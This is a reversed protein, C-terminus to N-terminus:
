QPVYVKLNDFYIRAVEGQKRAAELVITGTPFSSDRVRALRRDNAYVEIQDGRCIVKLHNTAAGQNIYSSETWDKVSSWAGDLQKYIVYSAGAGSGGSSILFDYSNEKDQQRFGIGYWTDDPGSGFTADVEIAFDHLPGIKPNTRVVVNYGVQSVVLLYEGNEYKSDGWDGVGVQWGSGPNSFDDEFLVTAGTLETEKLVTNQLVLWACAMIAISGILFVLWMRKRIWALARSVVTKSVSLSVSISKKGGNTLLNIDGTGEFGAPLGATDVTVLTELEGTELDITGASIELWPQTSSLKGVLRGAGDNRATFSKTESKGPVINVFELRDCDVSLIPAKKILNKLDQGLETTSSYRGSPDLQLAKQLVVELEPSVEPNKQRIPPFDPNFEATQPGQGALYEGSLPLFGTLLYYVMAGLAFIDSRPEPKGLWQEPPTYGYEGAVATDPATIRRLERSIGSDVFKIFGEDTLMVTRYSIDGHVLGQKHIPSVIDCMAIAWRIIEEEELQGASEEFVKRLTRGAIHEVVLFYHEGEVFHDLIMAVNPFSFEAMSLITQEFAELDTDSEIREKLQKIICHRDYLKKDSALYIHSTDGTRSLQQIEYRGQLIVGPALTEASLPFVYGCQQCVSDGVDYPRNCSPCDPM